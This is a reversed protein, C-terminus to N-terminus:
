QKVFKNYMVGALASAAHSPDSMTPPGDIANSIFAAANGAVFQVTPNAAALTITEHAIVGMEAIDARIIPLGRVVTRVIRTSGVALRLAGQGGGGM